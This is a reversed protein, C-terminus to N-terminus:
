ETVYLEAGSSLPLPPSAAAVASSRVEYPATGPLRSGAKGGKTQKGCRPQRAAGQRRRRMAGRPAGPHLRCTDWLARLGDAGTVTMHAVDTMKGTEAFQRAGEQGGRHQPLPRDLMVSDM